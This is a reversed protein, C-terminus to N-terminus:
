LQGQAAANVMERKSARGQHPFNDPMLCLFIVFPATQAPRPPFPNISVNSYDYFSVLDVVM